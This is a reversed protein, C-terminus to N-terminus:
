KGGKIKAPAKPTREVDVLSSEVVFEEALLKAAKIKDGSAGEPLGLYLRHNPGILFPHVLADELGAEGLAEILDNVVRNPDVRIDFNVRKEAPSLRLLVRM